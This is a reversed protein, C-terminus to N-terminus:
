EDTHVNGEYLTSDSGPLDQIGCLHGNQKALWVGVPHTGGGADDGNFVGERSFTPRM